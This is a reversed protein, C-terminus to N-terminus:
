ITYEFHTILQGVMLVWELRHFNHNSSMLRAQSDNKVGIYSQSAMRADYPSKEVIGTEKTGNVICVHDASNLAAEKGLPSFGNYRNSSYHGLLM